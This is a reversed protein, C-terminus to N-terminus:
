KGVRKNEHLRVLAEAVEGITEAEAGGRKRYEANAMQMLQFKPAGDDHTLEHVMAAPMEAAMAQIIVSDMLRCIRQNRGPGEIVGVM